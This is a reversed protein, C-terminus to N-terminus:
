PRHPPTTAGPAVAATAARPHLHGPHSRRHRTGAVSGPQAMRQQLDPRELESSPGIGVGNNVQAHAAPAIASCALLLAAISARAVPPM